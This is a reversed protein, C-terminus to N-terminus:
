ISNRRAIDGFVRASPKPTREFNTRDVSCLGYRPVFGSVWEWNDLLSWHVYGLVPVGDDIAQKLGQLAQPIYAARINDDHTNIGNETVIIPIGLEGHIYRLAAGLSAPYIERGPSGVPAGPPAPLKGKSDWRAREYNQVGVFEDNRAADLWRRYFLRRMEDRISNEGVAQDDSVALCVGVPLDPRVSKIADRASKHGILLNENMAAVNEPVPTNAGVYVASGAAKAAAALMARSISAVQPPMFKAFSPLFNPENLTAAYGIGAALHRAARECYRAFLGPADASTWGGIEAFWRPTTFHNFTVIPVLSRARCGEIIAKYHDLMALSFQGREPEIRAWELSFRYSNLGISKVLDLDRPWLELSNCADGSPEAFVTPRIHELPWLDANINNGEVQHGATAAGWLFGAPFNGKTPTAVPSASAKRALLASGALFLTRRDISLISEQM